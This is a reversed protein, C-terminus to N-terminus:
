IDAVIRVIRKVTEAQRWGHMLRYSSAVVLHSCGHHLSCIGQPISSTAVVRCDRSGHSLLIPARSRVVPLSAVFPTTVGAGFTEVSIKIGKLVRAFAHTFKVIVVNVLSVPGTSPRFVLKGGFM